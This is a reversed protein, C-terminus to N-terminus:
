VVAAASASPTSSACWRSSWASALRTDASLPCVIPPLPRTASLPNSRFHQRLRTRASTPPLTGPTRPSPRPQSRPACGSFATPTRSFKCWHCTIASISSHHKLAIKGTNLEAIGNDHINMRIDSMTIVAYTCQIM